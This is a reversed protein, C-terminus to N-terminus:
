RHCRTGIPFTLNRGEIFDFGRFPSSYFKASNIVDAVMDRSGGFWIQHCCPAAPSYAFYIIKTVKMTKGWVSRPAM